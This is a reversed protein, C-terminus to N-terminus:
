SYMKSVIWEVFRNPLYYDAVTGLKKLTLLMIATASIGDVDYDGFILIRKKSNVADIIKKTAQEMGSLLFPNNFDSFSPSFFKEIKEKTDVGRSLLLEVVKENLNLEKSISSILAFNEKANFYKQQKM